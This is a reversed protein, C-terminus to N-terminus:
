EYSKIQRDVLENWIEYLEEVTLPASFKSNSYWNEGNRGLSYNNQIWKAFAISKIKSFTEAALLIKDM